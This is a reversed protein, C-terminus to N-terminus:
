DCIRARKLPSCGACYLISSSPPLSIRSLGKSTYCDGSVMGVILLRSAPAAIDAHSRGVGVRRERGERRGRGGSVLGAKLRRGGAM